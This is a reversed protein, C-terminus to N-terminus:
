HFRRQRFTFILNRRSLQYLGTELSFFNQEFFIFFALALGLAVVLLSTIALDRPIIM